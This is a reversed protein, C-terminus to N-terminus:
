GMGCHRGASHQLQQVTQLEQGKLFYDAGLQEKAIQEQQDTYTRFNEMRYVPLDVDVRIVKLKTKQSRFDYFDQEGQPSSLQKKIIAERDARPLIKVTYTM